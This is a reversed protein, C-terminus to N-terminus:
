NGDEYEQVEKHRSMQTELEVLPTYHVAAEARQKFELLTAKTPVILKTNEAMHTIIISKTYVGTRSALKHILWIIDLYPYIKVM